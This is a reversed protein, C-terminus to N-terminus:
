ITSTCSIVRVVAIARHARCNSSGIAGSRNRELMKKIERDSDDGSRQFLAKPIQRSQRSRIEDLEMESRVKISGLRLWYWRSSIIPFKPCIEVKRLSKVGSIKQSNAKRNSIVNENKENEFKTRSQSLSLAKRFYKPFWSKKKKRYESSDSLKDNRSKSQLIGDAEDDSLSPKRQPIVKGCFVIDKDDVGNSSTDFDASFFEFLDDDCGHCSSSSSRSYGVGDASNDCCTSSNVHNVVPLDSLSLADEEQDSPQSARCGEMKFTVFPM